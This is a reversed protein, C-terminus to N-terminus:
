NPLSSIIFWCRFSDEYKEVCTSIILPHRFLWFIVQRLLLSTLVEWLEVTQRVLKTIVSPFFEWGTERHPRHMYTKSWNLWLETIYHTQLWFCFWSVASCIRKHSIGTICVPNRRTESHNMSPPIPTTTFNHDCSPALTLLQHVFNRQFWLLMENQKPLHSIVLNFHEKTVIRAITRESSM